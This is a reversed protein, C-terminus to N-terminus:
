EVHKTSVAHKGCVVCALLATCVGAMACDTSLFFALFGVALLLDGLVLTLGVLWAPASEKHAALVPVVADLSPELWADWYSQVTNPFTHAIHFSLTYPPYSSLVVSAIWYGATAAVVPMSTTTGHAALITGTVTHPNVIGGLSTTVAEVRRGATLISGRKVDSAPAITGDVFLAHDPTVSLIPGHDDHLTIMSSAKSSERHQNVVVTTVTAEDALVIDGSVLSTMLVRRAVADADDAPSGGFCHEFALAPSAEANTLRCATTTDRDFCPADDSSAGPPPSTNPPSPPPLPPPPSYTVFTTATSSPASSARYCTSDITEANSYETGYTGTLQTVLMM